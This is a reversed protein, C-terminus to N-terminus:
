RDDELAAREAATRTKVVSQMVNALTDPIPEPM